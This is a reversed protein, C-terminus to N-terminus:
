PNTNAESTTSPAPNILQMSSSYKDYWVLYIGASAMDSGVAATNGLVNISQTFSNSSFIIPLSAGETPIAQTLKLACLGMNALGRFANNPITIIVNSDSVEVGTSLILPIGRRNAFNVPYETTVMSNLNNSNTGFTIKLILM